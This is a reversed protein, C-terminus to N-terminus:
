EPLNLHQPFRIILRNTENKGINSTVTGGWLTILMRALLFNMISSKVKPENAYKETSIVINDYPTALNRETHLHLPSAYKLQLVLEKQNHENYEMLAVLEIATGQTISMAAGCLLYLIIYTLHEEDFSLPPLTEDLKLKVDIHRFRHFEHFKRVARHIVFTVHVRTERITLHQYHSEAIVRMDALMVKLLELSHFSEILENRASTASKSPLKEKIEMLQSTIFHLPNELESATNLLFDTRAHNLIESTEKIKNLYQNKIKLETNSRQQETLYDSLKRIQNALQEIELPGGKSIHHYREGANIGATIACLKEVPKIIRTKVMWLLTLLFLFIILIQILRAQLLHFIDDNNAIHDYRVYVLYPYQSSTEFYTFPVDYSFLTPSSILAKRRSEVNKSLDNMQEQDLMHELGETKMKHSDTILNMTTTFINFEMNSYRVVNKLEKTLHVIDIGMVLIGIFEGKYNTVGLSLPLIWRESIKSHAPRGLHVQWPASLAKKVYDRDSSTIIRTLIGTSSSVLVQQDANLWTIEDNRATNSDHFSGLLRGIDEPNDGMQVIQRALSELLYSGSKIEVILARDLRLAENEIDRTVGEAYHEFTRYSVWLAVIAVIALLVAFLLLFDRSVSLKNYAAM